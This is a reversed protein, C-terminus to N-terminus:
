KSVGKGWGGVKGMWGGVWLVLYVFVAHESLQHAQDQPGQGHARLGEHGGHRQDLSGGGGGGADNLGGLGLSTRVLHMTSLSLSLSLAHTRVYATWAYLSQCSPIVHVERAINESSPPGGM